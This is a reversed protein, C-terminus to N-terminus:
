WASRMRACSSPRGAKRVSSTFPIFSEEGCCTYESSHSPNVPCCTEICRASAKSSFRKAVESLRRLPTCTHKLNTAM